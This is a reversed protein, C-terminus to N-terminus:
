SKTKQQMRKRGGHGATKNRKQPLQYNEAVQAGATAGRTPSNTGLYSNRIIFDIERELGVVDHEDINELRTQGYYNFQRLSENDMM